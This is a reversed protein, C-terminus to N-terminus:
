LVQPIWTDRDTQVRTYPCRSSCPAVARFVAPREVGDTVLTEEPLPPVENQGWSQDQAPRTCGIVVMTLLHIFITRDQRPFLTERFGGM